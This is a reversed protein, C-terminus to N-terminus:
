NQNLIIPGGIHKFEAENLESLRYGELNDLCIALMFQEFHDVEGLGFAKAFSEIDNKLNKNSLVKGDADFHRQYITKFEEVTIGLKKTESELHGLLYNAFSSLLISEFDVEELDYNLYLHSQLQGDDLVKGWMESFKKIFPISDCFCNNIVEWLRYNNVSNVMFDLQTEGWRMKVEPMETMSNDLYDNWFDGLFKDVEEEGFQHKMMAKKMRTKELAIVGHGVRFVESFDFVDFFSHEETTNFKEVMYSFGIQLYFINKKAVRNMAIKGSKLADDLTMTANVMRLFNFKLYDIRKQDKVKAVESELFDFADVYPRIAYSNLTQNLSNASLDANLAKKNNIFHDVHSKSPFSSIFELADYYDVFGLDRLREKKERYESEQLEMFGDSTIKFLYAYAEEVGIVSYLHRILGQLEQVYPFDKDFEVILLGDDTLFFHEHEPYEPDEADFTYINFRGKFFLVFESSQLFETRVDEDEVNAITFLWDQFHYVDIEDKQWLDIDYLNQRQSKTLAPLLEEKEQPNMNRLAQYLPQIPINQIGNESAILSRLHDPNDYAISEQSLQVILNKFNM